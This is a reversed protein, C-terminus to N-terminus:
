PPDTSTPCSPSSNEPPPLPPLLAFALPPPREGIPELGFEIQNCLILNPSFFVFDVLKQGVVRNADNISIPEIQFKSEHGQKEFAANLFTEFTGGWQDSASTGSRQVQLCPCRMALTNAGPQLMAHCPMAHRLRPKM